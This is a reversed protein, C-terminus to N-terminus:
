YGNESAKEGDERNLYSQISRNRGPYLSQASPSGMKWGETNAKGSDQPLISKGPHDQRSAPVAGQSTEGDDKMPLKEAKRLM